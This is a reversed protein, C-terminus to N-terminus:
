NNHQCNETSLRMTGALGNADISNDERPYKGSPDAM